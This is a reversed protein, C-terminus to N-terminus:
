KNWWDDDGQFEITIEDGDNLNFEDRLKVESMIEIRKKFKEVWTHDKPRVLVCRLGNVKCRKLKIWERDNYDSAEIFGEYEGNDLESYETDIGVNLTGPFVGPVGLFAAIKKDVDRQKLNPGANGLGPQVRGIIKTM